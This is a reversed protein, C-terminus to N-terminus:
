PRRWPAAGGTELRRLSWAHEIFNTIGLAVCREYAARAAEVRGERDAVVGVFCHAECLQENGRAQTVLKAADLEGLLFRAIPGPWADGRAFREAANGGFLAGHWLGAYPYGPDTMLALELETKALDANVAGGLALARSRAALLRARSAPDAVVHASLADGLITAAGEPDRAELRTRAAARLAELSESPTALPEDPIAALEGMWMPAPEAPLADLLAGLEEETVVITEIERNLMFRLDDVCAPGPSAAVALVLRGEREAVPVVRHQRAVSASLHEDVGPAIPRPIAGGPVLCPAGPVKASHQGPDRALGEVAKGLEKAPFAVCHGQSVLKQLSPLDYAAHVERQCSECFKRDPNPTPTLQSWQLPCQFKFRFRERVEDDRGARALAADYRRAAAEDTPDSAAARALQELNEDL